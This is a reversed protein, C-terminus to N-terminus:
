IRDASVAGPPLRYLFNLGGVPTILPALSTLVCKLWMPRLLTRMVKQGGYLRHLQPTKPHMAMSTHPFFNSRGAALVFGAQVETAGGDGKIEVVM